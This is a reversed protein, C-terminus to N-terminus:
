VLQHYREYFHRNIKSFIVVWFIVVHSVTNSDWLIVSDWVTGESWLSESWCSCSLFIQKRVIQTENCCLPLIFFYWRTSNLFHLFGSPFIFLSLDVKGSLSVIKPRYYSQFFSDQFTSFSDEFEASKFHCAGSISFIFFYM